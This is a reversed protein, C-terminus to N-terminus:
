RVKKVCISQTKAGIHDKFSYVNVTLLHRGERMGKTDFFYTFPSIGEEEEHLFVFDVFFVIEFREDQLFKKDQKSLVIKVPVAGGVIPTGDDAHESVGPLEIRFDPERCRTRAHTAHLYKPALPNVGARKHVDQRRVKSSNGLPHHTYRIIVSNDSLSYASLNFEVTPDGRLDLDSPGINGDWLYRHRGAEQPHWDVLTTLLPGGEKIGVRIRLMAAKPLVYEVKGTEDDYSLSRLVLQRGYTEDTRDYLAKQKSYLSKAEIVYTYAGPPLYNGADDRGDWSVINYGKSAPGDAVLGRVLFDDIDYLRVSVMAQESLRYRIRAQEKEPDFSKKELSVNTITLRVPQSSALARGQGLIFLTCVLFTPVFILLLHIHHSKKNM